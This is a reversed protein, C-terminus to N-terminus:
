TNIEYAGDTRRTTLKKLELLLLTSSITQIPEQILTSLSDPTIITHAKLANYIKNEIPSLNTPPPANKLPPLPKHSPPPTLPLDLQTLYNLEELIVDISTCLSAGDRILEHCGKSSLQDIRNPVAFVQRGQEGALRATIMSGGNSATEVVIIAQAMGSVIRNRRPFTTKDAPKGFPLESVIAGSQQIKEYLDKNDPPYIINIGCGLVAVTKGNVALAGEHAASDAGRAMGSVICFGLQALEMSLQKAVKLGYLTSRRSGIIAITKLKPTYTGLRYLGIPPDYIEKLLPPYDDSTYPIFHANYESLRNLEKELDFHNKWNIITDSLTDGIGEVQMLDFKSAEFIRSPDSGFQAMLRKLAIPGIKPLANLIMWSPHELLTTNM